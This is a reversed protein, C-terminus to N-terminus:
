GGIAKDLDNACALVATGAWEDLASATERWQSALERLAAVPIPRSGRGPYVEELHAEAGTLTTFAKARQKGDPDRWRAQYKGRRVEISGAGWVREPPLEM